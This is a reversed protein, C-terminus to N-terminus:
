QPRGASRLQRGPRVPRSCCRSRGTGPARCQDLWGAADRPRPLTGPLPPRVCHSGCASGAPPIAPSFQSRGPVLREVSALQGIERVAYWNRPRSWNQVLKPSPISFKEFNVRCAPGFRTGSASPRRETRTSSPMRPKPMSCGLPGPKLRIRARARLADASQKRSTVLVVFCCASCSAVDREQRGEQCGDKIGFLKASTLYRMTANGELACVEELLRRQELEDSLQM